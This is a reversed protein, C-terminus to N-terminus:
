TFNQLIDSCRQPTQVPVSCGFDTLGPKFMDFGDYFNMYLGAPGM